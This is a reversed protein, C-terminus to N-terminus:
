SRKKFLKGLLRFPALFFAVIVKLTKTVIQIPLKLLAVFLSGVGSAAKSIKSPEPAKSLPKAGLLDDLYIGGIKVRGKDDVERELAPEKKKRFFRM